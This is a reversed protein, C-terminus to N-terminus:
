LELITLLYLLLFIFLLRRLNTLQNDTIKHCNFKKFANNWLFIGWDHMFFKAKYRLDLNREKGFKRSGCGTLNLLNLFIKIKYYHWDALNDGVTGICFIENGGM